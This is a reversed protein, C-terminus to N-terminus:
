PATRTRRTLETQETLATNLRDPCARQIFYKADAKAEQATLPRYRM